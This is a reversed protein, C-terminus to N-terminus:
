QIAGYSPAPDESPVIVPGPELPVYREKNEAVYTPPPQNQILLKEKMAEFLEKQMIVYNEQQPQPHVEDRCRFAYCLVCACLGALAMPSLSAALAIGDVM